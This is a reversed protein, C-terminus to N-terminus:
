FSILSHIGIKRQTPQAVSFGDFTTNDVDFMLAAAVTGQHPFWYAVGAIVREKTPTTISSSTKAELHDFRILGEWGWGTIPTLFASWGRSEVAASAASTRDTAALYDFGAHVHPHEFTVSGIARRRDANKVYADHDWFGTVRLGHLAGRHPLPRLTGRVQVSKQDNVEPRSYGEGNFVGAQVDGYDGPLASHFSAGADSTPLFAERDVFTPSQFRYRYIADIFELWPSPQLGFRAYSGKTLHDDLNWQAFAYKLRFTSSGNLSSGVGTERTIDPTLRFSINRTINGTVNIYSRTVQFASLTVTNGDADKIKPEQQITYDAFVLVGLKISPQDAPAAAPPPAQAACPESCVSSVVIALIALRLASSGIM